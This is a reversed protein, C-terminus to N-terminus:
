LWMLLFLVILPTHYNSLLYEGPGKEAATRPCIVLSIMGSSEQFLLCFPEGVFESQLWSLTGRQEQEAPFHRHLCYIAHRGNVM